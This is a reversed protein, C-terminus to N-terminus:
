RELDLLAKQTEMDFPVSVHQHAVLWRGGERRLGFTTRLTSGAFRTLAHAFAADGAAAIRVDRLEYEIPTQAASFGKEWAARVADRGAHALPEVLDFVVVDSTCLSLMAEIDKRRVADAMSDLTARILTEDDNM